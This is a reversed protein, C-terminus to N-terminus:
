VAHFVARILFMYLVTGTLISLVANRKVAQVTVTLILAALPPLVSAASSLQVDKLCYVVLMGIIAPPLVRGLYIIYAPTNKRFVFFPLFRTLMTMLAMVAILLASHVADFPYVPNM